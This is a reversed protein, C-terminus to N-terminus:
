VEASEIAASDSSEAHQVVESEKKLQAGPAPAQPYASPAMQAMATLAESAAAHQDSSPRQYPQQQGQQAGVPRAEQKPLGQPAVAQLAPPPQPRLNGTYQPPPHHYMPRYGEGPAPPAAGYTQVAHPHPYPAPAYQPPPAPAGPPQGQAAGSPPAQGQAGLALPPPNGGGYSNWGQSIGKLLTAAGHVGQMTPSGSAVRNGETYYYQMPVPPAGGGSAPVLFISNM